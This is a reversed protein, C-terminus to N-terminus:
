TQMKQDFFVPQTERMQRYWDYTATLQERKSKKQMM